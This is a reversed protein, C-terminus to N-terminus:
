KQKNGEKRGKERRYKEVYGKEKRIRRQTEKKIHVDRKGQTQRDRYFMCLVNCQWKADNRCARM